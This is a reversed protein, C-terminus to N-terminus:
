KISKITLVWSVECALLRFFCSSSITSLAGLVWIGGWSNSSVLDLSGWGSNLTSQRAFCGWSRLLLGTLHWSQVTQLVDLLIKLLMPFTYIALIGSSWSGAIEYVLLSHECYTFAGYLFFFPLSCKALDHALQLIQFVFKFSHHWIAAIRRRILSNWCGYGISCNIWRQTSRM